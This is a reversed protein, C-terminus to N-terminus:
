YYIPRWAPQQSLNTLQEFLIHHLATKSLNRFSHHNCPSFLLLIFINYFIYLLIYQFPHHPRACTSCSSRAGSSNERTKPSPTMLSAM